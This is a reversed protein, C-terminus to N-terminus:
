MRCLLRKATHQQINCHMATYQLTICRKADPVPGYLLCPTHQLTNCHTAIRQVKLSDANTVSPTGAMATWLLRKPMQGLPAAAQQTWV